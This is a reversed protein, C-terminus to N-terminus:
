LNNRKIKTLSVLQELLYRVETPGKVYYNAYSSAKRGVSVKLADSPLIKFADEDTKDDGIFIIVSKKPVRVIQLIRLIAYGKDWTINPRIEIVKKGSTLKLLEQYPQIIQKMKIKLRPIDSARVNRYHVSLTLGKNEVLVKKIPILAKILIAEVKNLLPLVQMADPHIWTRKNHHIQFGHNAAYLIHNIRVLNRIDTLSRGTIIGVFINPDIVLQAIITKTKSSLVALHPQKKIPVITGDYDIFLYIRHSKSIQQQINKWVQKQFLYSQTM